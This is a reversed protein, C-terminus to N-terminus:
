LGVRGVKVYCRETLVVAGDASWRGFFEHLERRMADHGPEGELPTCSLSQVFGILAELSLRRESMFEAEQIAGGGLGRLFMRMAAERVARSGAHGVRTEYARQAEAFARGQASDDKWPGSGVLAVWGGPELVRRFERATEEPEFWHFARGAAVLRVSGENLGTREATGDVVELAPYRGQLEECAARMAANPEVAVVENGGELFVTALMGTGAGVDAVRWGAELGCANCLLERIEGAPYGARFQAYEKVRGSFRETHESM